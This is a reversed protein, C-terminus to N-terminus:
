SIVIRRPHQQLRTSRDQLLRNEGLLAWAKEEERRAEALKARAEEIREDWEPFYETM